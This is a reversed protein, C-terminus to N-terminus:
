MAAATALPKGTELLTKLGALIHEWGGDTYRATAEGMDDHIVRVNTGRDAPTVEWTVTSFEDNVANEEASAVHFTQVLKRPPDIELITGELYLEDGARSTWQSGVKWDSLIDTGYYYGRTLEPDTIARWIDEPTAGSVTVETEHRIGSM